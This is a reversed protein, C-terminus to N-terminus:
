NTKPVIRKQNCLYELLGIREQITPHDNYEDSYEFPMQISKLMYLVNEGGIGLWDLLRFAIIDAQYEQERSYKFQYLLTEKDAWAHVMASYESVDGVMNETGRAKSYSDNFVAMGTAISAFLENSKEKKFRKYMAVLSHQFMGHALEHALVAYFCPMGIKSDQPLAKLLGDYIYVNMKPTCFANIEDYDLYNISATHAVPLDGLIIYKFSDIHANYKTISKYYYENQSLLSSLTEKAKKASGGKTNIRNILSQFDKNNDNIYKWFSDAKGDSVEPLYKIVDYNLLIKKYSQASISISFFFTFLIFIKKMIM